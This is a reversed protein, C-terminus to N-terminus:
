AINVNIQMFQKSNPILKLIINVGLMGLIFLEQFQEDMGVDMWGHQVDRTQRTTDPIIQPGSLRRSKLIGDMDPRLGFGYLAFHGFM